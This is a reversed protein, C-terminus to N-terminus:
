HQSNIFDLQQPSNEFTLGNPNTGIYNLFFKPIGNSLYGPDITFIKNNGQPIYPKVNSIHISGNKDKSIWLDLKM